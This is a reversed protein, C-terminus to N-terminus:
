IELGEEICCVEGEEEELVLSGKITSLQPRRLSM